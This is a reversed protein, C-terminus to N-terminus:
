ITKPKRLRDNLFRIVRIIGIIRFYIGVFNKIVKREPTDEVKYEEFEFDDVKM